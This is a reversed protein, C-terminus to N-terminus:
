CSEVFEDRGIKDGSVGAVVKAVGARDPESPQSNAGESEGSEDGSDSGGCAALLPMVVLAIIVIKRIVTDENRAADRRRRMKRQTGHVSASRVKAEPRSQVM